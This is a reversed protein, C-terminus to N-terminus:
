NYFVEPQFFNIIDENATHADGVVMIGMNRIISQYDLWTIPTVSKGKSVGTIATSNNKVSM